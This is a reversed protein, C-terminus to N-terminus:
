FPLLLIKPILDKNIIISITPFVLHLENICLNVLFNVIESVVQLIVLILAFLVILSNDSTRTILLSFEQVLNKIQFVSNIILWDDPVFM